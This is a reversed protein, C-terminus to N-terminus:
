MKSVEKSVFVICQHWSSFTKRRRRRRRVEVEIEAVLVEDCYRKCAVEEHLKMIQPQPTTLKNM